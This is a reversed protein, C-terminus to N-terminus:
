KTDVAVEKVVFVVATAYNANTHHAEWSIINLKVGRRGIIIVTAFITTTVITITSAITINAPSLLM